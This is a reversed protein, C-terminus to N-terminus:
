EDHGQPLFLFGHFVLNPDRYFGMIVGAPTIGLPVTGQYSVPNNPVDFVTLTGDPARLFGHDDGACDNFSGTIAGAPTIGSPFTWVGGPPCPITRSGVKISATVGFTTITGDPARVFVHYEGGFEAGNIVQFYAGTIVGAPNMALDPGYSCCSAFPSAIAGPPDFSTFGGDSTLLFGHPNGGSDTYIGLITGDPNIVVPQTGFCTTTCSGPVDFTTLTGDSARLFGHSVCNTDYYNGTVAGEPNISSPFTGPIFFNGEFCTTGISPADFTSFTGNGARVFGHAVLNPDNTYQYSGTVAGAPNISAPATYYTLGPVDFTTATGNSRRVFGHGVGNADYYYGTITGAPNISTPSTGQFRGTGAGPAVHRLYRHDERGSPRHRPPVAVAGRSRSCSKGGRDGRPRSAARVGALRLIVAHQWSFAACRGAGDTDDNAM